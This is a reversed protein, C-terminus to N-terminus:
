RSPVVMRGRAGVARTQRADIAPPEVVTMTWWNRWAGVKLPPLPTADKAESRRREDRRPVVLFESIVAPYHM